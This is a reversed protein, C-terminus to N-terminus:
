SLHSVERVCVCMCLPLVDCTGYAFSQTLGGTGTWAPLAAQTLDSHATCQPRRQQTCQESRPLLIGLGIQASRRIDINTVACCLVFRM